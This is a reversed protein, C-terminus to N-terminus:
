DDDRKSMTTGRLAPYPKRGMLGSWLVRNFRATPVNDAESFDFGAM